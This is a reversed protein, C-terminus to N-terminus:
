APLGVYSEELSDLRDKKDAVYTLYYNSMQGADCEYHNAQLLAHWKQKNSDKAADDANGGGSVSENVFLYGIADEFAKTQQAFSGSEMKYGEGKEVKTAVSAVDKIADGEVVPTAEVCDIRVAVIKNNEDLVLAAVYNTVANNEDVSAEVALALTYTKETEGKDKSCAVFCSLALVLVLILSLIRKM